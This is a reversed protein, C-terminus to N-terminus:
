FSVDVITGLIAIVVLAIFAKAWSFYRLILDKADSDERAWSPIEKRLLKTSLKFAYLHFSIGSLMKENRLAYFMGRPRGESVWDDYYNDHHYKVIRDFLVSLWIWSVIVVTILLVSLVGM